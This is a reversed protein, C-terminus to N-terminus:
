CRDGAESPIFDELTMQKENENQLIEDLAEIDKKLQSQNSTAAGVSEQRQIWRLLEVDVLYEPTTKLLNILEQILKNQLVYADLYPDKKSVEKVTEVRKQSTELALQAVRKKM